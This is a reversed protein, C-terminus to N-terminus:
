EGFSGSGPKVAAAIETIIGIDISLLPGGQALPAPM